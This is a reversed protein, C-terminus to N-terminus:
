AVKEGLKYVEEVSTSGAHYALTTPTEGDLVVFDRWPWMERHRLYYAASLGAQGAGIVVVRLPDYRTGSLPGREHSRHRPAASM